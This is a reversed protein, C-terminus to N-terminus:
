AQEHFQIWKLLTDKQTSPDKKDREKCEKRERMMKKRKRKNRENRERERNIEERGEENLGDNGTMGNGKRGIRENQTAEKRGRKEKTIPFLFFSNGQVM